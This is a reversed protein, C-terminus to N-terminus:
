ALHARRSGLGILFGFPGAILGVQVWATTDLFHHYAGHGSSMRVLWTLLMSFGVGIALGLGSRYLGPARLREVM